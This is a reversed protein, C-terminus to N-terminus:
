IVKCEKRQSKVRLKHIAQLTALADMDGQGALVRVNAYWERIDGAAAEDSEQLPVVPTEDLTITLTWM